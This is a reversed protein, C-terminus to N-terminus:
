QQAVPFKLELDWIIWSVVRYGCQFCLYLVIFVCFGFDLGGSM